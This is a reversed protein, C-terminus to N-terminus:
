LEVETTDYWVNINKTTPENEGYAAYLNANLFDNYHNYLDLLSFDNNDDLYINNFNAGM